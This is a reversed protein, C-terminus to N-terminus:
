KKLKFWKCNFAEVNRGGLDVAYYSTWMIGHKFVEPICKINVIEIGGDNWKAIFCGEEKPSGEIAEFKIQETM